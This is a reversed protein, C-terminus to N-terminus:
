FNILKQLLGKNKKTKNNKKSKKKTKNSVEDPVYRLFWEEYEKTNKKAKLRKFANSKEARMTEKTEQNGYCSISFRKLIGKQSLRNKQQVKYLYHSMCLLRDKDYYPKNAYSFALYLNLTTDITAVRIKRKNYSILNYSHCAQPKYIFCVSDDNITVEYHESIIEGLGKNKKIKIKKIGNRKLKEKIIDALSKPNDSLVDFDPINKLKDKYEDLTRLYLKNAFAGFFVVSEDILTNLVTHFVTTELQKSLKNDENFIRQIADVNCDKSKLPYYKNLLILRKLVKEWRSVDGLPRSLELYMSMRLYDPPAYLIGDKKISDKKITKFLKPDLQTIDAVPMFDVFVKYTGKHVGAKAEVEQYGLNYYYTALLKADELANPSYFDYDPLEVDLNYFQADKPLINNIATGGYCVLEKEKLFKEVLIIIVQIDESRMLNKGQREETRDVAKRLIELECEEYSKDKECKM